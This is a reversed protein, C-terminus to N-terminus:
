LLEKIRKRARDKVLLCNSRWILTCGYVDTSLSAVSSDMQGIVGGYKCTRCNDASKNSLECLEQLTLIDFPDPTTVDAKVNINM